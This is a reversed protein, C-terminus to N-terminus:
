QYGSRITIHDQDSDYRIEILGGDASSEHDVDTDVKLPVYVVVDSGSSTLRLCDTEDTLLPGEDCHTSELLTVRYGSGAVRRPHEATLTVDDSSGVAIQDGAAIEGAIREGITELSSEASRDTQSDLMTGASVLLMSILITTIGITLVHTVTISLARDDRTIPGPGIM